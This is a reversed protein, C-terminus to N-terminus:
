AEDGGNKFKRARVVSRKAPVSISWSSCAASSSKPKGHPAPVRKAWEIAQEMSQADIVSFGAILENMEAFPRDIV